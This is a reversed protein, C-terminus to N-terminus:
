YEYDIYNGKIDIKRKALSRLRLDFTLLTLEFRNALDIVAEDPALNSPLIYCNKKIIELAARAYSGKKGRNRAMARIERYVSGPVIMKTNPLNIRRKVAEILFSTDVIIM